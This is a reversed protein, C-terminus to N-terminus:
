FNLDERYYTLVKIGKHRHEWVKKDTPVTFFSFLNQPVVAVHVEEYQDRIANCIVSFFTIVKKRSIVVKELLMGCDGVNDVM